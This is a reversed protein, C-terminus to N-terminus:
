ESIAIWHAIAGSVASGSWSRFRITVYDRTVEVVSVEVRLRLSQHYTGRDISTPADLYTIGLHVHPTTPFPPKFHIHVDDQQRDASLSQQLVATGSLVKM